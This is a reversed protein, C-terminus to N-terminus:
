MAIESLPRPGEQRRHGIRSFTLLRKASSKTKRRAEKQILVGVLPQEHAFSDSAITWAGGAM